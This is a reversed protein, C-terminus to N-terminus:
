ESKEKNNLLDAMEKIAEELNKRKRPVERQKQQLTLISTCTVVATDDDQYMTLSFYWRDNSWAISIKLDGEEDENYFYQDTPIGHEWALLMATGFDAMLTLAWYPKKESM